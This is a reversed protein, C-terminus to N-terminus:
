GAAVRVVRLADIILQYVAPDDPNPYEGQDLHDPLKILRVIGNEWEMQVYLDNIKYGRSSVAIMPHRENFGNSWHIFVLDGKLFRRTTRTVYGPSARFGSGPLMKEKAYTITKNIQEVGSLYTKKKM